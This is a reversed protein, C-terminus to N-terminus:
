LINPHTLAFAGVAVTAVLIAVLLALAVRILARWFFAVIVGVMIVIFRVTEASQAAEQTGIM